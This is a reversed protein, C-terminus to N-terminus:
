LFLIPLFSLLFFLFYCILDLFLQNTQSSVCAYILGYAKCVRVCVFVCEREREYVRMRACMRERERVCVCVCIRERERKCVCVSEREYVSERM